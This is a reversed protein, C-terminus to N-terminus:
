GQYPTITEGLYQIASVTIPIAIRGTRTLGLVTDNEDYAALNSWTVTVRLTVVDENNITDLDIVGSYTNVATQITNNTGYEQVGFTINDAYEM